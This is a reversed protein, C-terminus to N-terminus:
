VGFMNDLQNAVDKQMSPIVHAYTDLTTVVTSHGLRESVVKVNVGQKLLLTAHTHRLDHFRIMLLGAKKVDYQFRRSAESPYIPNGFHHFVFEGPLSAEKHRQLAEIAFEPLSVTRKSHTTKPEKTHLGVSLTYKLSRKVTLMRAEVDIDEWYLGLMEGIRMGTSLALVYLAHHPSNASKELFAQVQDMSWVKMKAPKYRPPQTHRMVNTQIIQWKEATHFMKRLVLAINSITGRSVENHLLDQYFQEVQLHTIKDMHKNGFFPLIHKEAFHKQNYYTMHSVQNKVHEFFTPLFEAVKPAGVSQGKEIQEELKYAERWAEKESKFGSVTKQRRRGTIPDKGIDITFSWTDGRQRVYAM